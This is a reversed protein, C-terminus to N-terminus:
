LLCFLASCLSESCLKLLCLLSYLAATCASYLLCFLAAAASPCTPPPSRGGASGSGGRARCRQFGRAEVEGVVGGGAAREGDGDGDAEGSDVVTGSICCSSKPPPLHLGASFCLPPPPAYWASPSGVSACDVPPGVGVSSSAPRSRPLPPRGTSVLAWRLDLNTRRRREEEGRARV